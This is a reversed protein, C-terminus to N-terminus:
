LYFTVIYQIIVITWSVSNEKVGWFRVRSSEEIEKGCKIVHELLEEIDTDDTILGFKVCALENELQGSVLCIKCYYFYNFVYENSM